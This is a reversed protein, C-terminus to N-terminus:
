HHHSPIYIEYRLSNGKPSDATVIMNALKNHNRVDVQAIRGQHVYQLLSTKGCNGDGVIVLKITATTSAVVGVDSLSNVPTISNSYSLQKEDMEPSSIERAKGNAIPLKRRGVVKDLSRDPKKLILHGLPQLLDQSLVRPPIDM